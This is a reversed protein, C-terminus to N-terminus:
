WQQEGKFIQSYLQIVVATPWQLNTNLSNPHRTVDVLFVFDELWDPHSQEPIPQEKNEM